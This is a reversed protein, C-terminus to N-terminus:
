ADYVEDISFFKNVWPKNTYPNLKESIKKNYNLDYTLSDRIMDFIEDLTDACDKSKLILLASEITIDGGTLESILRATPKEGCDFHKDDLKGNYFIKQGKFDGDTIDFTINLKNYGYDTEGFEMKEVKVPYVGNPVEKYNNGHKEEFEKYQQEAKNIEDKSFRKNFSKFDVGM